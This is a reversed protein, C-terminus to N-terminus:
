ERVEAFGGRAVRAVLLRALINVVVTVLLLVLGMYLLASIYIPTTAEAFENAIVASITYSPALLSLSIEPRNGIVMTVAMTEGLARALALMVAGVLGARGYPLVAIRTTEWRTAGLAIAAERQGLPVARLVETGVAVILPLVMIALIIGAAMMGIGLPPGQFLPLFGLTQVLRPEVTTRLWPALVFLGWLGYIVSPIAALLEVLFSVPDRIWAPALEALFIAVGLALPVALLLAFVSSVVTGYVFPLAGFVGQVPDWTSGVFFGLGFARIAPLGARVMAAVMGGMILLVSAAMAGALLRFFRDGPNRVRSPTALAVTRAM